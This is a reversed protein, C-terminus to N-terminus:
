ICVTELILHLGVMVSLLVPRIWFVLYGVLEKAFKVLAEVAGLPYHSTFNM